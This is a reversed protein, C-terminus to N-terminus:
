SLLAAVEDATLGLKTLVAEKASVKALEDKNAKDTIKKIEAATLYTREDDTGHWMENENEITFGQNYGLSKAAEALSVYNM